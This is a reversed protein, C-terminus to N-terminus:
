WGYKTNDKQADTMRGINDANSRAQKQMFSENASRPTSVQGIGFLGSTKQAQNQNTNTNSFFVCIV